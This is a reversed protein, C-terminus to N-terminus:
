RTMRILLIGNKGEYDKLTKPEGNFSVLPIDRDVKNSSFPNIHQVEVIYYVCAILIAIILIPKVNM